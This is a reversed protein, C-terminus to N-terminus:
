GSPRNVADSRATASWRKLFPKAEATSGTRSVVIENTEWVLRGKPTYNRVRYNPIPAVPTSTPHFIMLMDVPYGAGTTYQFVKQNDCRIGGSLEWAQLGSPIPASTPPLAGELVWGGLMDSVQPVLGRIRDAVTDPDFITTTTTAPTTTAPTSTSPREVTTGSTTSTAAIAVTASISSTATTTAVVTLIPSSAPSRNQSACAVTILTIVLISAPRLIPLCKSHPM